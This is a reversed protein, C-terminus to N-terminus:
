RFRELISDNESVKPHNHKGSYKKKGDATLVIRAKCKDQTSHYKYCGWYSIYSVGSKEKMRDLRFVHGGHLM